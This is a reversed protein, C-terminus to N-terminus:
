EQGRQNLTATAPKNKRRGPLQALIAGKQVNDLRSWTAIEDLTRWCGMCLGSADDM